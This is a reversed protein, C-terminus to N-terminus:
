LAYDIMINDNNYEWELSNHLVVPALPALSM